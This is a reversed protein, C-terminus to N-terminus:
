QQDRPSKEKKCKQATFEGAILGWSMLILGLILMLLSAPFLVEQALQTNPFGILLSHSFAQEAGLLLLTGSIMRM